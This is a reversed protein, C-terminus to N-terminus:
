SGKGVEYTYPYQSLNLRVTYKGSAPLIIETGNDMLQSGFYVGLTRNDAGTEQFVFQGETLTTTIQLQRTTEDYNLQIPTGSTATGTISWTVPTASYTLANLDATLKYLEATANNVTINGGRPALKGSGGSGWELEGWSPQGLLKFETNATFWLYGEYVQNAKPSAIVTQPEAPNWGQYSGPVYLIPYTVTVNYATLLLDVPESHLTQIHNNIAAIVRFEIDAPTEPVLGAILASNNLTAYDTRIRTDKTEAIKVANEFYTGAKAMQVTYLISAPFGYDAAQWAIELSDNQQTETLTLRTGAGPTTLVPATFDEAYYKKNDTECGTLLLLFCLTLFLYQKKM